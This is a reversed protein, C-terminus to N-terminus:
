PFLNGIVTIYGQRTLGGDKTSIFRFLNKNEEIISICMRLVAIAGAVVFM